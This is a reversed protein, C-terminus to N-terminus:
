GRNIIRWNADPKYQGPPLEVPTLVEDWYAAKLIGMLKTKVKHPPAMWMRGDNTEVYVSAMWRLEHLLNLKDDTDEVSLAEILRAPGGSLLMPSGRWVHSGMALGMDVPEDRLLKAMSSVYSILDKYKRCVKRMAARDVVHVVCPAAIVTGDPKIIANDDIIYEGDSRCLLAHKDQIRTRCGLVDEIFLTTTRTIYGYAGVIIDGNACWTVVETNYLKAAYGQANEVIAHHKAYRRGLPRIDTGRIPITSDFKYKAQAYNSIPQINSNKTAFM